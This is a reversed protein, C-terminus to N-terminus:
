LAKDAPQTRKTRPGSHIEELEIRGEAGNIAARWGEYPSHATLSYSLMGGKSYKVNVSMTDICPITFTLTTQSFAGTVFIATKGRLRWIFDKPLNM